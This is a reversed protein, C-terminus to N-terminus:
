NKNQINDTQITKDENRIQNCNCLKNFKPNIIKLIQV